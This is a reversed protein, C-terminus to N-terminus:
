TWLSVRISLKTRNILNLITLFIIFSCRIIIIEHLQLRRGRQFCGFFMKSDFNSSTQLVHSLHQLCFLIIFFIRPYYIFIISILLSKLQLSITFPFRNLFLLLLMWKSKSWKWSFAVAIFYRKCLSSLQHASWVYIRKFRWGFFLKYEFCRGLM